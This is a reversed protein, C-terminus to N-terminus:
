ILYIVTKLKEKKDGLTECRKTRHNVLGQSEFSTEKVHCEINAIDFTNLVVYTL